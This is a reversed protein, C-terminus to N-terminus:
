GAGMTSMGTDTLGEHEDLEPSENTFAAKVTSYLVTMQSSPSDWYEAREMTVRLLCIQADEPGEPFYMRYSPNWLEHIKQRDRVIEAHGSISVYSQKQSDCLAISVKSQAEIEHVKSSHDSSIFWIERGKGLQVLMPRCHLEGDAKLTTLMACSSSSILEHLKSFEANSEM